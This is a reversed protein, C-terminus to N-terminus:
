TWAFRFVWDTPRRRPEEAVPELGVAADGVMLEVAMVNAEGAALTFTGAVPLAWSHKGGLLWLMGQFAVEPPTESLLDLV